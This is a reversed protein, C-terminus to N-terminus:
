DIISGLANPLQNGAFRGSFPPTLWVPTQALTQVRDGLHFPSASADTAPQASLNVSLLITTVISLGIGFSTPLHNMGRFFVLASRFASRKKM